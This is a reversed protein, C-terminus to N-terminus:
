VEEEEKKNQKSNYYSAAAKGVNDGVGAWMAATRDGQAQNFNAQGTYASSLDRAQNARDDYNQRYAGVHQIQQQNRLDTNSDALRQREGLNTANIQNKTATNRQMVGQTNRANFEAIADRAQAVRAQEDFDQGRVQGAMQGGAMLAELARRRQAAAIDLGAQSNASAAAQQNSLNSALELGSGGMGRRAMGQMLAERQGREVAANDGQIRNLAAKDEITFGENGVESLKQLAAMQQQRVAPDGQIDNFATGQLQIAEELEPTLIGQQRLQEFYVKQGEPDPPVNQLITNVADNMNDRAIRRDKKAQANGMVGGMVSAIAPIAAAWM